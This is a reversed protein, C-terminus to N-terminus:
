SIHGSTVESHSHSCVTGCLIDKYADLFPLVHWRIQQVSNSFDSQRNLLFAMSAPAPKYLRLPVQDIDGGLSLLLAPKAVTPANVEHLATLLLSQPKVRQILLSKTEMIFFLSSFFLFGHGFGGGHHLIYKLGHNWFSPYSDVMTPFSPTAALVPGQFSVGKNFASLLYLVPFVM